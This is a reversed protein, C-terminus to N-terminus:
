FIIVILVALSIVAMAMIAFCKLEEKPTPNM